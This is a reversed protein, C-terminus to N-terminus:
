KTFIDAVMDRVIKALRKLEAIEEPTVGDDPMEIAYVLVDKVANVLSKIKTYKVGFVLALVGFLATLAYAIIQDM